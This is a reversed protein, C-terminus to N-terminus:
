ICENEVTYAERGRALDEGDWVDHEAEAIVTQQNTHEDRVVFEYTCAYTCIHLHMYRLAHTYTYPFTLTLFRLHMHLHM